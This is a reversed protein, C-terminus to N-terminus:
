TLLTTGRKAEMGLNRQLMMCEYYSRCFLYYTVRFEQVGRLIIIKLLRRCEGKGGEKTTEWLYGRDGQGHELADGEEVEVVVQDVTQPM